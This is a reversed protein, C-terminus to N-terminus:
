NHIHFRNKHYRLLMVYVLPYESKKKIYSKLPSINSPPSIKQAKVLVFFRRSILLNLIDSTILSIVSIIRNTLMKSLNKHEIIFFLLFYLTFFDWSFCCLCGPVKRVFIFFLKMRNFSVAERKYYLMFNIMQLYNDFVKKFYFSCYEM